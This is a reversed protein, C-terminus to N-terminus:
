GRARGGELTRASGKNMRYLNASKLRRVFRM